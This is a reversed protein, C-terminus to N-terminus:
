RRRSSYSLRVTVEQSHFRPGDLIKSDSFDFPSQAQARIKVQNGDFSAEIFSNLRLTNSREAETGFGIVVEGQRINCELSIPNFDGQEPLSLRITLARGWDIQIVEIREIKAVESRDGPAQESREQNSQERGIISFFYPSEKGLDYNDLSDSNSLLDLLPRQEEEFRNYYELMSGSEAILWGRKGSTMKSQFDLKIYIVDEIKNERFILLNKVFLEARDTKSLKNEKLFSLPLRGSPALGSYESISQDRIADVFDSFNYDIALSSFGRRAFEDRSGRHDELFANKIFWSRNDSTRWFKVMLRKGSHEGESVFFEKICEEQIYGMSVSYSEIYDSLVSYYESAAFQDTSIASLYEIDNSAFLAGLAGMTKNADEWDYWDDPQAVLAASAVTLAMTAALWRRRM